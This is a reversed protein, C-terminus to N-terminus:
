IKEAFKWLYPFALFCNIQWMCYMLIIMEKGTSEQWAHEGPGVKELKIRERKWLEIVKGREM